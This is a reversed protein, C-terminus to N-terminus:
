GLPITARDKRGQSNGLSVHLGIEALRHQHPRENFNHRERVGAGEADHFVHAGLEILL